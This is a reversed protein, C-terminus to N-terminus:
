LFVSGHCTKGDYNKIEKIEKAPIGGIIWNKKSFSKTVVSGAAVITHDPLTVGPLIVANAGIWCFKGIKIPSKKEHVDYDYKDHNASIIKVSPGIRCGIDIEIGNIGQIYCCPSLGPYATPEIRKIEGFVVSTWHVPWPISRNIGLIRQFFFLQLCKLLNFKKYAKIDM